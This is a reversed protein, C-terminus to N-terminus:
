DAAEIRARGDDLVIRVEEPSIRWLSALECLRSDSLMSDGYANLLVKGIRVSFIGEPPPLKNIRNLFDAFTESQDIIAIVSSANPAVGSEAALSVVQDLLECNQCSRLLALITEERGMSKPLSGNQIKDLLKRVSADLACTEHKHGRLAAAALGPVNQRSEKALELVVKIDNWDSCRSAVLSLIDKSISHDESRLKSVWVMLEEFTTETTMMRSIVQPSREGPTGKLFLDYYSRAVLDPKIAPFIRRDWHLTATQTEPLGACFGLFDSRYSRIEDFNIDGYNAIHKVCNDAIAKALGLDLQTGCETIEKAICLCERVSKSKVILPTFQTWNRIDAVDKTSALFEKREGEHSVKEALARISKYDPLIGNGKMQLFLLNAEKFSPASNIEMTYSVITRESEYSEWFGPILESPDVISRKMFLCNRHAQNLKIGCEDLLRVCAYLDEKCEALRILSTVHKSELDELPTGGIVSWAEKFTHSKQLISNLVWGDMNGNLEKLLDLYEAQITAEPSQQIMAKVLDLYRDRHAGREYRIQNQFVSFVTVADNFNRASLILWKAEGALIKLAGKRHQDLLELALTNIGLSLELSAIITLLSKKRRETLLKTGSLRAELDSCIELMQKSYGAAISRSSAQKAIEIASDPGVSLAVPVAMSTARVQQNTFKDGDDTKSLKQLVLLVRDRYRNAVQLDQAARVIDAVAPAVEFFGNGRDRIVSLATLGKFSPVYEPSTIEAVLSRYLSEDFHDVHCFLEILMRLTRNYDRLIRQIVEQKRQEFSRDRIDLEAHYIPQNALLKPYVHELQYQILLPYYYDVSYSEERANGLIIQVLDRDGIYREVWDAADKRPIGDLERTMQQLYNAVKDNDTGWAPPRRSFILSLSRGSLGLVFRELTHSLERGRESTIFERGEFVREFEDIALVLALPKTPPASSMVFNVDTALIEPLRARLQRADIVNSKQIEELYEFHAPSRERRSRKEITLANFTKWALQFTKFTLNGGDELFRGVVDVGAAASGESLMAKIPRKALRNLEESSRTHEWLKLLAFDFLMLNMGAMTLSNRLHILLGEANLNGIQSLDSLDAHIIIPKPLQGKQTLTENLLKLKLSSKGEGGKGTIIALEPKGNDCVNQYLSSVWRILSGRNVFDKNTLDISQPKSDPIPM